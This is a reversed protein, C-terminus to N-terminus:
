VVSKRDLTELEYQPDPNPVNRLDDQALTRLPSFLLMPLLLIGLLRYTTKSLRGVTSYVRNIWQFVGEVMTDIGFKQDRM